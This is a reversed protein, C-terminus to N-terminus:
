GHDPEEAPKSYEWHAEYARRTTAFMHGKLPGSMVQISHGVCLYSVGEHTWRDGLLYGVAVDAM